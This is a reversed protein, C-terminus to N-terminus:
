PLEGRIDDLLNGIKEAARLHDTLADAADGLLIDTAEEDIEGDKHVCGRELRDILARLERTTKM